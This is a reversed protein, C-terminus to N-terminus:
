SADLSGCGWMMSLIVGCRSDNRWLLFERIPAERPRSPIIGEHDHFGKWLITTEKNRRRLINIEPSLCFFNNWYSFIFKSSLESEARFIMWWIWKVFDIRRENLNADSYWFVGNVRFDCILYLKLIIQAYWRNGDNANNELAITAEENRLYIISCMAAAMYMLIYRCVAHAQLKSM